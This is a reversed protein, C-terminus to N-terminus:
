LRLSLLLFSVFAFSSLFFFSSIILQNSFSASAAPVFSQSHSHFPIPFHPPPTTLVILSPPLWEAWQQILLTPGFEKLHSYLHYRIFTTYVLKTLMVNRQQADWMQLFFYSILLCVWIYIHIYIHIYM